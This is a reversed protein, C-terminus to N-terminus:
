GHDVGLYRFLTAADRLAEKAVTADTTRLQYDAAIRWTYLRRVITVMEMKQQDTQPLSLKMLKPLGKHSPTEQGTEFSVGVKRLESTILCFAAYYSRSVSSRYRPKGDRGQYLERAAQYNEIGIEQWTAM